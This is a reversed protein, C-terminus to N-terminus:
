TTDLYEPASMQAKFDNGSIMYPVGPFTRTYQSIASDFYTFGELDDFFGPYKEEVMDVYTNDFRDFLIYIINEDSAVTSLGKQSLVYDCNIDNDHALDKNVFDTVLSAGNMGILLVSLFIVVNKWKKTLFISLYLFAIFVIVFILVMKYYEANSFESVDGSKIMPKKSLMNDLTGAIILSFPLSSVVNLAFRQLLMLIGSILIAVGFFLLIVPAAIDKFTFAFEQMNNAYIDIPGFLFLVFSAAFGTLCSILLKEKISYKEFEIKKKEKKM